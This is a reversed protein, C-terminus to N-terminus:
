ARVVVEVLLLEPPLHLGRAPAREAGGPPDAGPLDRVVRPRRTGTTTRGRSSTGPGPTVFRRPCQVLLLQRRDLRAALHEDGGPRSGPLGRHEDLAEHPGDAVLPEVDLRHEHDGVRALGGALQAGADAGGEGLAAPGVERAREVAGPDRGDVAEAAPQQAGMRERDPDVRAEVLEVLLM